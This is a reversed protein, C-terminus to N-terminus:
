WDVKCSAKIAKTSAYEEQQLFKLNLDLWVGLDAGSRLEAANM